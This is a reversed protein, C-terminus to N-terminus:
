GSAVMLACRDRNGVARRAQRCPAGRPDVRWAAALADATRGRQRRAPLHQRRHFNHFGRDSGAQESRAAAIRANLWHHRDVPMKLEPLPFNALLAEATTFDIAVDARRWERGDRGPRWRSGQEAALTDILQGDQRLRRDPREGSPEEHLRQM